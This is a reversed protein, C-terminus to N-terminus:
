RTSVKKKTAAKEDDSPASKKESTSSEKGAAPTSKKTTPAEKDGAEAEQNLHSVALNTLLEDTAQEEDLIGQLVPVVKDFGLQKAWTRATGYNAMEYHEVKQAAAIMVADLTHGPKGEQLHEDAEEILGKMAKCVVGTPKFGCDEAIQQVKTAHEETQALHTEFAKKLDASTAKKAMKPLAKALQKEANHIDKILDQFAENLNEM